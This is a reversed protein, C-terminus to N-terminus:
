RRQPAVNSQWRPGESVACLAKSLDCLLLAPTQKGTAPDFNDDVIKLISGPVFKRDYPNLSAFRESISEVQAWTLARVAPEGDGTRDPGGPCFIMEGKKTAVIAMSDTDEMAYTGDLESVCHELLALMLRAAGTILSAIPPFCYEGFQDPHSVRCQFPKSDIGHCTVDIKEDMEQRIM